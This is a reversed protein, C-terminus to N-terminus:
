GIDPGLAVRKGDWGKVQDWAIHFAEHVVQAHELGGEMVTKLTTLGSFVEEMIGVVDNTRFGHMQARIPGTKEGNKATKSPYFQGQSLANQDM